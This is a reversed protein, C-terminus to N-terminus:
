KVTFALFREVPFKRIADRSSDDSLIKTLEPKNVLTTMDDRIVLTKIGVDQSLNWIRRPRPIHPELLAFRKVADNTEFTALYVIIQALKIREADELPALKVLWKASDTARIQRNWEYMWSLSVKHKPDIQVLAMDHAKKVEAVSGYYFVALLVVWLLVFVMLITTLLGKIGGFGMRTGVTFVNNFWFMGHIFVAFVFLASCWVLGTLMWPRPDSTIFALYTYGHKTMWYYTGVSALIGVGFLLMKIIGKCMALVIFGVLVVAAIIYIITNTEM